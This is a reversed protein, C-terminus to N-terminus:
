SCSESIMRVSTVTVSRMSTRASEATQGSTGTTGATGSTGGRAGGTGGRGTVDETGRKDVSCGSWLLATAAIAILAKM